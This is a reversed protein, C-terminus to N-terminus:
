VIGFVDYSSFLLKSCLGANFGLLKRLRSTKIADPTCIQPIEIVQNSSCAQLKIFTALVSALLRAEELVLLLVLEANSGYRECQVLLM